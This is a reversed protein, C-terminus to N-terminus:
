SAKKSSLHPAEVARMPLALVLVAMIVRESVLGTGGSDDPGTVLGENRSENLWPCVQM